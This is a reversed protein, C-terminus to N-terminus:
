PTAKRVRFTLEGVIRVLIVNVTWDGAAGAESTFTGAELISGSFVIANANDQITLTGIGSEPVPGLDITAANGTNSWTYRFMGSFDGQRPLDFRFDDTQNRVNELTEPGTSDCAGASALLVVLAALRPAFRFHM